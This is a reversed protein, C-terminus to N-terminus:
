NRKRPAEVEWWWSISSIPLPKDAADPPSDLFGEDTFTEPDTTRGDLYRYRRSELCWSMGGATYNWMATVYREVIPDKEQQILQEGLVHYRHMMRNIYDAAVAVAEPEPLKYERRIVDLFNHGDDTRHSEKRYSCLDSYCNMVLASMERIACIRRDAVM